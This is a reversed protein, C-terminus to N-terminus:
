SYDLSPLTWYQFYLIVIRFSRPFWSFKSFKDPNKFCISSRKSWNLKNYRTSLVLLRNVWLNITTKNNNFDNIIYVFLFLSTTREAQHLYRLVRKASEWCEKATWNSLHRVVEKALVNTGIVELFQFERGAEM